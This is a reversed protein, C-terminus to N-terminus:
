RGLAAFSDKMITLGYFAIMFATANTWQVRSCGFMDALTGSNSNMCGETRKKVEVLFENESSDWM